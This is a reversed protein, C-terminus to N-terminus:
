VQERNLYPGLISEFAYMGGVEAAAGTLFISGGAESISKPNMIYFLISGAAGTIVPALLMSSSYSLKDDIPFEPLIYQHALDAVLSGGGFGIAAAQWAAISRGLLSVEMTKDPALYSFIGAGVAAVVLPKVFTQTVKSEANANQM